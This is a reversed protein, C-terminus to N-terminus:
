DNKDGGDYECLSIIIDMLLKYANEKWNKCILEATEQDPVPFKLDVVKNGNERMFCRVSNNKNIDIFPYANVLTEQRIKESNHLLLEDYAAKIVPSLTGILTSIAVKGEESVSYLEQGDNDIGIIILGNKELHGLSERFSFYNILGPSLALETLSKESIPIDFNSLLYLVLIDNDILQKNNEYMKVEAFGASSRLM